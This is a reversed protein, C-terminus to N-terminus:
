YSKQIYNSDVTISFLSCFSNIDGFQEVNCHVYQRYQQQSPLATNTPHMSRIDHPNSAASLSLKGLREKYKRDRVKTVATEM